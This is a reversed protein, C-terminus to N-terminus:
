GAGGQDHCPGCRDGHDLHGQVAPLPVCMTQEAPTGPKHCITAKTAEGECDESVDCAAVQAAPPGQRKGSYVDMLAGHKSLWAGFLRAQVPSAKTDADIIGDAEPLRADRAAIAIVFAASPDEVDRLADAVVERFVMLTADLNDTVPEGAPRAAEYVSGFTQEALHGSNYDALDKALQTRKPKELGFQRYSSAGSSGDLGTKEVLLQIAAAAEAETSASSLATLVEETSMSAESDIRNLDCGALWIGTGAVVVLAILIAAVHTKRLIRKM